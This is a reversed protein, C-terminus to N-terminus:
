AGAEEPEEAAEDDDAAADDASETEDVTESPTDTAEEEDQEEDDQGAWELDRSERGLDANSECKSSCYHITTGNKRVFMTGTGPEIEAGCFDCERTRPM